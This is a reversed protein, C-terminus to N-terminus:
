RFRFVHADPTKLPPMYYSRRRRLELASLEEVATPLLEDVNNYSLLLDLLERNKGGQFLAPSFNKIEEETKRSSSFSDLFYELRKQLDPNGGASAALFKVTIIYRLDKSVSQM